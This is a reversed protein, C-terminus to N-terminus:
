LEFGVRSNLIKSNQAGNMKAYFESLNISETQLHLDKAVSDCLDDIEVGELKRFPIVDYCRGPRLLAQNLHSKSEINTTIIIKKYKSILGDTVSLFKNIPNLSEEDQNKHLVQNIDELVLVDYDDYIIRKYFDSMYFINEDFSYMARFDEKVQQVRKQMTQLLYKVFTTKGTGAEGQLILVPAKSNLFNDIYNDVDEIFPTAVPNFNVDVSDQYYLESLSTSGDNQFISYSILNQKNPIYQSLLTEIERMYRHCQEVSSCLMSLVLGTYSSEYQWDITAIFNDEIIHMTYPSTSYANNYKKLLVNWIDEINDVKFNLTKNRKVKMLSANSLSGILNNIFLIQYERTTDMIRLSDSNIHMLNEQEM